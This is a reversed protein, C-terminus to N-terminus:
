IKIKKVKINHGLWLHSKDLLLIAQWDTQEGDLQDAQSTVKLLYFNNKKYSLYKPSKM